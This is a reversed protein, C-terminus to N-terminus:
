TIDMITAAFLSGLCVYTFLAASYSLVVFRRVLASVDNDKLLTKLFKRTSRLQVGKYKPAAGSNIHEHLLRRQLRWRDGYRALALPWGAGMSIM